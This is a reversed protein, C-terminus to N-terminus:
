SSLFFGAGHLRSCIQSSVHHLVMRWWWASEKTEALLTWENAPTLTIKKKKPFDWFRRVVHFQKLWHVICSFLPIKRPDELRGRSVNTGEGLRGGWGSMCALIADKEAFWEAEACCDPHTYTHLACRHSFLETQVMAATPLQTIQKDENCCYQCIAAYLRTIPINVTNNTYTCM